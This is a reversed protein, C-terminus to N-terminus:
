TRDAPRDVIPESVPPSQERQAPAGRGRRFRRVIATFPSLFLAGLALAVWTVLALFYPILEVGPMAGYAFLGFTFADPAPM